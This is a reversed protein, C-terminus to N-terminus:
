NSPVPSELRRSLMAKLRSLGEIARFIAEEEETASVNSAELFGQRLHSDCRSSPSLREASGSFETATFLRPGLAALRSPNDFEVLEIRGITRSESHMEGEKSLTASVSGDEAITIRRIDEPLRIEPELLYVEGRCRLIWRRRRDLEFQGNRSYVKRGNKECRLSYFGPGEIAVDFQRTTPILKGPRFDFAVTLQISSPSRFIESGASEEIHPRRRKFGFTDAHLHNYFLIELKKEELLLCREMLSADSRHRSSRTKGEPRNSRHEPLTADPGTSPPSPQLGDQLTKEIARAASHTKRTVSLFEQFEPDDTVEEMDQPLPEDPNGIVPPANGIVPPAEPLEDVAAARDGTRRPPDEALASSGAIFFLLGLVWYKSPNNFFVVKRHAHNERIDDM